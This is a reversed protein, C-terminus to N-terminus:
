QVLKLRSEMKACREDEEVKANVVSIVQYFYNAYHETKEKDPLTLELIEANAYLEALRANTSAHLGMKTLTEIGKAFDAMLAIAASCSYGMLFFAKEEKTFKGNIMEVYEDYEASIDKTDYQLTESAADCVSAIEKSKKLLVDLYDRKRKKM